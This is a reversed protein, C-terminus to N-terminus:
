KGYPEYDANVTIEITKAINERVASPIKIEYDAVEVTFNSKAVIQDGELKLQAVIEIEKTVGHITLEGKVKFDTFESSLQDLSFDLLKGKFTSKPFQDSEMYKENFHEQMLAKEFVFAKILLSFVLEGNEANLVTSVQNNVAEINEVPTESFFKITGSQTMYKQAMGAFSLVVLSIFLVSKKM